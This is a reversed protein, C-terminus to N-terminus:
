DTCKKRTGEAVLTSPGNGFQYELSM